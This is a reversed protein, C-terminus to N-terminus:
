VVAKRLDEGCGMNTKSRPQALLECLGPSYPGQRDGGGEQLTVWRVGCAIPVCVSLVKLPLPFHVIRTKTFVKIIDECLEQLLQEVDANIIGEKVNDLFNRLNSHSVIFIGLTKCFCHQDQLDWYLDQVQFQREFM